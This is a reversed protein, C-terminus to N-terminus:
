GNKNMKNNIQKIVVRTDTLAKDDAGYTLEVKGSIYVRLDVDRIWNGEDNARVREAIKELGEECSKRDIDLIFQFNKGSLGANNMAMFDGSSYFKRDEGAWYWGGSDYCRYFVTGSKRGYIYFSVDDPNDLELVVDAPLDFDDDPNDGFGPIWDKVRDILGFQIMGMIVIIIVVLLIILSVIKGIGMKEAKKGIM